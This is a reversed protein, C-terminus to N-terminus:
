KCDHDCTCKTPYKEALLDMSTMCVIAFVLSIWFSDRFHDDLAYFIFYGIPVVIGAAWLLELYRFATFKGNRAYWRHGIWHITTYTFTLLVIDIAIVM